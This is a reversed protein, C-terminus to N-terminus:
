GASLGDPTAAQRERGRALLAALVGAGALLAGITELSDLVPRDWIPLSMLLTGCAVLAYQRRTGSWPAAALVLAM